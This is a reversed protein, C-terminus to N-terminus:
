KKNESRQSPPSLSAATISMGGGVRESGFMKTSLGDTALQNKRLYHQMATSMWGGLAMVATEGYGLAQLSTAGGSRMSRSSWKGSEDMLGVEQAARVAKRVAQSWGDSSVPGGRPATFLLDNEGAGEMRRRRVWEELLRAPCLVADGVACEIPVLEGEPHNKTDPFFVTVGGGPRPRVGSVQVKALDGARKVARLALALGVLAQQDARTATGGRELKRAWALVAAPPLDSTKEPNRNRKAAKDLALKFEKLQADKGLPALRFVHMKEICVIVKRAVGPGRRAAVWQAYSMIQWVPVPLRTSLQWRRCWSLFEEMQREYDRLSKKKISGSMRIVAEKYLGLVEEPVHEVGLVAASSCVGLQAAPSGGTEIPGHRFGVSRAGADVLGLTESSAAEPGAVVLSGGVGSGGFGDSGTPGAGFRDGAWDTVTPPMCLEEHGELGADLFRGGGWGARSFAFEMEPAECEALGCLSGGGFGTGLRVGGAVGVTESDLRQRGGVSVVWGSGTAGNGALSDLFGSALRDSAGYLVVSGRGGLAGSSWEAYSQFRGGTGSQGVHSGGASGGAGDSIGSSGFSGRAGGASVSEGTTRAGVLRPFSNVGQGLGAKSGGSGDVRGCGVMEGNSRELLTGVNFGDADCDLRTSSSRRWRDGGEDGPGREVDMVTAAARHGSPRSDDEAGSSWGTTWAGLGLGACEPDGAGSGAIEGGFSPNYRDQHSSAAIRVAGGRANAKGQRGSGQGGAGERGGGVGFVEGERGTGVQEEAGLL